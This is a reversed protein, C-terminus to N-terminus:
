RPHGGIPVVEYDYYDYYPRSPRGVASQFAPAYNPPGPFQQQETLAIQSLIAIVALSWSLRRCHRFDFTSYMTPM